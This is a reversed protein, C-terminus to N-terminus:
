RRATSACRSSSTASRGRCRRAARRGHEARAADLEAADHHRRVGERVERAPAAQRPRGGPELDAPPHEANGAPLLARIEDPHGARLRAVPQDGDPVAKALEPNKQSGTTSRSTAASRGSSARAGARAGDRDARRRPEAGAVPVAGADLDRRGPRQRAGVRMAPVAIAVLKISNPDVGSKKLAAKIMVEGVGKLANVAITKGPSTPRRASRAPARSWSTRGTTPSAVHGRGREGRCRHVPDGAHPAIFAPVYGLYGIDGNNNALALVIDNGSQLSTRRSRSGRSRSSARRSGSTSRCARERDAAHRRHDDRADRESPASAATGGFSSCRSRRCCALRPSPPRRGGREDNTREEDDGPPAM